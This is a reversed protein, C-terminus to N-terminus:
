MLKSFPGSAHLSRPGWARSCGFMSSAGVELCAPVLDHHIKHKASYFQIDASQGSQVPCFTGSQIQSRAVFFSFTRGASPM